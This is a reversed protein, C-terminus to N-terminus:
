IFSTHISHVRLLICSYFTYPYFLFWISRSLMLLEKLYECLYSLAHFYPTILVYIEKSAIIKFSSKLVIVGQSCAQMMYLLRFHTNNRSNCVTFNKKTGHRETATCSVIHLSKDFDRPPFDM